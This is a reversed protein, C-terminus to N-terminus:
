MRNSTAPSPFGPYPSPVSASEFSISLFPDAEGLDWAGNGSGVGASYALCAASGQFLILSVRFFRTCALRSQRESVPAPQWFSALITLPGGGSSLWDTLHSSRPAATLLIVQQKGPVDRKQTSDINTTCITHGHCVQTGKDCVKAVRSNAGQEVAAVHKEVCWHCVSSFDSLPDLFSQM